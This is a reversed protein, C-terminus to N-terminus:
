ETKEMAFKEIDSLIDDVSTDLYTYGAFEADGEKNHISLFNYKGKKDEQFNVRRSGIIIKHFYCDGLDETVHPYKNLFEIITM